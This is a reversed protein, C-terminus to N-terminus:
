DHRGKFYICVTPHLLQTSRHNLLFSLSVDTLRPKVHGHSYLCQCVCICYTCARQMAPVAFLLFSFVVVVVIVFSLGVSYFLGLARLTFLFSCSGSISVAPPRSRILQPFDLPTLLASDGNPETLQLGSCSAKHM